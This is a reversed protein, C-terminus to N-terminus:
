SDVFHMYLHINGKYIADVCFVRGMALLVHSTGRTILALSPGVTAFQRALAQNKPFYSGERNVM